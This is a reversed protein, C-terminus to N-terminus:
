AALDPRWPACNCGSCNRLLFPSEVAPDDFGLEVMRRRVKEFLLDKIEALPKIEGAQLVQRLDM